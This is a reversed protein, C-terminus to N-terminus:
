KLLLMKKVQIRGDFELRSFYIGSALNSANFQVQHNTGATAEGDFLTAVEQGLTNYVKLLARGSAPVTFQINTTPNFPNPFNQSLEFM